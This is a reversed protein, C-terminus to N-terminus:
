KKDLKQVEDCSRCAAHFGEHTLEAPGYALYHEYYDCKKARCIWWSKLKNRLRKRWRSFREMASPIGVYWFGKLQYKMTMDLRQVLPYRTQNQLNRPDCRSHRHGQHDQGDRRANDEREQYRGASRGRQGQASGGFPDQQPSQNRSSRRLVARS